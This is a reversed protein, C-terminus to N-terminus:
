HAGTLLGLESFTPLMRHVGAEWRVCADMHM